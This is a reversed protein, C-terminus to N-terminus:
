CMKSQTNEEEKTLQQAQYREGGRRRWGGVEKLKDWYRKTDRAQFCTELESIKEKLIIKRKRKRMREVKNKTTKMRRM